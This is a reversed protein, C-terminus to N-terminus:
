KKCIVGFGKGFYYSQTKIIMASVNDVQRLTKRKEKEIKLMASDVKRQTDQMGLLNRLWDM